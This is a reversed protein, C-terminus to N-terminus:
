APYRGEIIEQFDASSIEHSLRMKQLKRIAEPGHTSLAVALRHKCIYGKASDPCTCTRHLTDVIYIVRRADTGIMSESPVEYCGPLHNPFIPSRVIRSAREIRGDSTRSLLQPFIFLLARAYAYAQERSLARLIRPRTM